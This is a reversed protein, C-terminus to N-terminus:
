RGEVSRRPSRVFSRVVGLAVAGEKIGGYVRSRTCARIDLRPGRPNTTEGNWRSQSQKAEQEVCEARRTSGRRPLFLLAGAVAPSGNVETKGETTWSHRYRSECIHIYRQM